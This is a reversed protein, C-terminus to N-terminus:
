AKLLGREIHLPPPVRGSAPHRLVVDEDDYLHRRARHTPTDHACPDLALLGSPVSKVRETTTTQKNKLGKKFFSAVCIAVHRLHAKILAAPTSSSLNLDLKKKTM